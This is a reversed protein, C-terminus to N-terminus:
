KLNNILKKVVLFKLIHFNNFCTVRPGLNNKFRLFIEIRTDAAYIQLDCNINNLKSPFTIGTCAIERLKALIKNTGQECNYRSEKSVACASAIM